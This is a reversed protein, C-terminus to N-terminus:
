TCLIPSLPSGFPLRGDITCLKTLLGAVDDVMDMRHRFFRYVHESTTSPYFQRIDLKAIQDSAEHLGANRRATHGRRPSYLYDPQKIRTLRSQLEEHLTRLAGTPCAISRLKEGIKQEKRWYHKARDRALIKISKLSCGTLSILDVQRGIRYFPSAEITHVESKKKSSM